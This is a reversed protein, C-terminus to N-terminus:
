GIEVLVATINDRGGRRNALKIFRDVSEQGGSNAVSSIEDPRLYSHLGDSCLLFQDGPIVAVIATDVQVYERNGVARTIV